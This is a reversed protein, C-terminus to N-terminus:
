PAMVSRSIRVTNIIEGKDNVMGVLYIGGPLGSMDFQQQNTADFQRVQRGIINYVILQEVAGNENGKLQFQSTVPNPYVQLAETEVRDDTSSLLCDSDNMRIDFKVTAISETLDDELFYNLFMSCCGSEGSPWVHFAFISSSEGPALTAAPLDLDFIDNRAFPYCLNNDCVQTRWADNCGPNVERAWRLHVTDSSINTVTYNESEDLYNDTLDLNERYIPVVEPEITIPSQAFCLVACFITIFSLVAKKM